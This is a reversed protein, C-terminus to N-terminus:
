LEEDPENEGKVIFRGRMKENGGPTPVNSFFEFEGATDAIFKFVHEKGPSIYENLQFALCRLGAPADKAEVKLVITEGKNVLIDRPIYEGKEATLTVEHIVTKQSLLEKEEQEATQEEEDEAAMGLLSMSVSVIRKRHRLEQKALDHFLAKLDPDQQQAELDLYLDIGNKEMNASINFMEMVMTNKSTIVALDEKRFLPIEMGLKNFQEVSARIKSEDGGAKKELMTRLAKEHKIEEDVLWAFLEHARQDKIKEACVKYFEYGAKEVNIAFQLWALLIDSM